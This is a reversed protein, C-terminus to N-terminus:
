TEQIVTKRATRDDVSELSDMQVFRTKREVAALMASKRDNGIVLDGEWHGPAERDNIEASRADILTMEPIKGRKEAEKGPPPPKAFCAKETGGEYLFFMITYQKVRCLMVLINKKLWKAAEEPSWRKELQPKAKSWAEGSMKLRPRRSRRAELRRAEVFEPNYM